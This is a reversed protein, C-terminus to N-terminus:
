RGLECGVLLGIHVLAINEVSSELGVFTRGFRLRADLGGEYYPAIRHPAVLNTHLIDADYGAGLGLFVGLSFTERAIVAWRGQAMIGLVRYHESTSILGGLSAGLELRDTVVDRAELRLAPKVLHAPVKSQSHLLLAPGLRADLILPEAQARRALLLAVMGPVSGAFRRAGVRFGLTSFLTGTLSNWAM